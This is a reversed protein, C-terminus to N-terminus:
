ACVYNYVRERGRCALPTGDLGGGLVLHQFGAVLGRQDGAVGAAGGAGRSGNSSHQLTLTHQHTRTNVVAVEDQVLRLLPQTCSVERAGHMHCIRQAKTAEVVTAVGVAGHHSRNTPQNTVAQLPLLPPLTFPSSYPNTCRENNPTAAARIRSHWATTGENNHKEEQLKAVVVLLVQVVLQVALVVAVVAAVMCCRRVVLVVAVVHLLLVLVHVHLRQWLPRWSAGHTTRHATGRPQQAHTHQKAASGRQAAAHVHHVDACLEHLCSTLTHTHATQPPTILLTTPAQSVKPRTSDTTAQCSQKNNTQPKKPPQLGESCSM